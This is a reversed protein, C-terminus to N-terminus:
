EGPAIGVGHDSIAPANATVSGESCVTRLQLVSTDFLHDHRDFRRRGILFKERVALCREGQRCVYRESSRKPIDVVHDCMLSIASHRLAIARRFHACCTM